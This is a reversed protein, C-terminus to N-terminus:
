GGAPHGGSKDAQADSEGKKKIQAAWDDLLLARESETMTDIGLAQCDQVLNDILRSMQKVSYRSSGYYFRVTVIEGYFDVRETVWGTGLMEWATCLSKAEDERLHYDRFVGVERIHDRYVEEKTQGNARALEDMLKWAYRNADLSRRNRHESLKAMYLVPKMGAVFQRALAPAKVRLGLWLGEADQSWRAKDFELEM